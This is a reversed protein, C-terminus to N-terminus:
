DIMSVLGKEGKAVVWYEAMEVFLAWELVLVVCGADLTKVFMGDDRAGGGEFM